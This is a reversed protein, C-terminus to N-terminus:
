DNVLGGAFRERLYDCQEKTFLSSEDACVIGGCFNYNDFLWRLAQILEDRKISNHTEMRAVMEIAKAKIVADCDDALHYKFIAIAAGLTMIKEDKMRDTM